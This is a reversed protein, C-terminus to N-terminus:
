GLAIVRQLELDQLLEMARAPEVAVVGLIERVSTRGDILALLAHTDPEFEFWALDDKAVAIVPVAELSSDEVAEAGAQLDAPNVRPGPGGLTRALPLMASRRVATPVEDLYELSVQIDPASAARGQRVNGDARKAYAAFRDPEVKMTPFDGLKGPM